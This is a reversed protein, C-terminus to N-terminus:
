EKEFEAIVVKGEADVAVLREGDPTFRLCGGVRGIAKDLITVKNRSKGPESIGGNEGAVLPLVSIRGNDELVAFVNHKSSVAGGRLARHDKFQEFNYAVNSPPRLRPRIQVRPRPVPVIFSWEGKHKHRESSPATTCLIYPKDSPSIYASTSTIGTEYREKRYHNKVFDFPESVPSFSEDLDWVLVRNQITTVCTLIRPVANLYVRKPRDQTPLPLTSCAELRKLRSSKEYKYVVIQGQSAKSSNGQGQGLALVLQNSSEFCAIGSSEWADFSVVELQHREVLDFTLIRQSTAIVLFRQSMAADLIPDGNTFDRGLELPKGKPNNLHFMSIRCHDYFFVHQCDSSLGAFNFSTRGLLSSFFRDRPFSISMSSTTKIKSRPIFPEQFDSEVVDPDTSPLSETVLDPDIPPTRPPVIPPESVCFRLSAEEDHDLIERVTSAEVLATDRISVRPSEEIEFKLRRFQETRTNPFSLLIEMAKWRYEPVDSTSCLRRMQDFFGDRLASVDALTALQAACDLIGFFFYGRGLTPGETGLVRRTKMWQGGLRPSSTETEATLLGDVKELLALVIFTAAEKM